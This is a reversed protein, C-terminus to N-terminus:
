GRTEITAGLWADHHVPCEGSRIRHLRAVDELSLEYRVGPQTSNALQRFFMEAEYMIAASEKRDMPRFSDKEESLENAVREFAERLADGRFAMM